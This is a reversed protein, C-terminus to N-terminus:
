CIIDVAHMLIGIFERVESQLNGWVKLVNKDHEVFIADGNIAFWPPVQLHEADKDVDIDLKSILGLKFKKLEHYCTQIYAAGDM